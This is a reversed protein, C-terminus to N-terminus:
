RGQVDLDTEGKLRDVLRLLERAEEELEGAVSRRREASNWYSASDKEVQCGAAMRKHEDASDLLEGADAELKWVRNEAWQLAPVKCPECINRVPLEDMRRELYESEGMLDDIPADVECLAKEEGAETDFLHMTEMEYRGNTQIKPTTEIRAIM